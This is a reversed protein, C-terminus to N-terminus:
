ILHCNNAQKLRYGIEDHQKQVVAKTGMVSPPVLNWSLKPKWQRLQKVKEKYGKRVQTRFFIWLFNTQMNTKEHNYSANLCVLKLGLGRLFLLYGLGHSFLKQWGYLAFSLEYSGFMYRATVLPLPSHFHSYINCMLFRMCDSGWQASSM